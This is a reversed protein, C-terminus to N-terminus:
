RKGSKNRCDKEASARCLIEEAQYCMSHVVPNTRTRPSEVNGGHHLAELHHIKYQSSLKALTKEGQIADLAVKAMFVTDFNKRM